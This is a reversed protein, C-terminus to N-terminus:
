SQQTGTTDLLCRSVRIRESRTRKYDKKGQENMLSGQAKPVHLLSAGTIALCEVSV